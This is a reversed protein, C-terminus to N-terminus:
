GLQMARNIEEHLQLTQAADPRLVLSAECAKLAHNLKGMRLQIASLNHLAAASPGDQELTGLLAQEADEPPGCEFLLRTRAERVAKSDPHEAVGSEALDRAEDVLGQLARLQVLLAIAEDAGGDHGALREIEREITAPRLTTSLMTEILARRTPVYAPTEVLSDRLVAEAVDWRGLDREVLALNHLLKHGVVGPDISSFKAEGRAHLVQLYQQEAEDLRRLEHLIIGRRFGLEPDQPRYDLARECETLAEDWQGLSCLCGVLLAQAKGVQSDSPNSVGLSRRLYGLAVEHEGMDSYTMGLNFLAFPHDPREELEKMLIRLDRDYKGQKEAGALNSGHHLVVIDSREVEGGLRRISPLLQEHIRFEFRLDPLNRFLKVHDVVTMEGDFRGLCQVQASYALTQPAHSGDALARLRQGSEAPLTDDTDMWFLWDGTAHEVSVNRAASFDDCWPFHYICAGLEAAIEATRDVSGTDVFIIEDVWPVVSELCRRIIPENDRGIMCLSLRPM